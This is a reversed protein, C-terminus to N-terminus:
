IFVVFLNVCSFVNSQTFVFHFFSYFCSVCFLLYLSSYSCESKAWLEVCFLAFIFFEFRLFIFQIIANNRNLSWYLFLSYFYLVCLKLFMLTFVPSPKPEFYMVFVHREPFLLRGGEMSIVRVAYFVFFKSLFVSIRVSLLTMLVAEYAEFILLFSCVACVSTWVCVSSCVAIYDWLCCKVKESYSFFTLFSLHRLINRDLRLIM